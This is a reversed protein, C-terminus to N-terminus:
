NVSIEDVFLFGGRGKRDHWEPLSTLTNALVRVYRASTEPFSLTYSRIGNPVDIGEVEYSAEAVKTFTQGDDSTSITLGTPNFVDDWKNVFVGLTVKSYAVEGGMDVTVDFPEFYWGAWDGSTYTDKGNVGDTLLDPAHYTYNQTPKVNMMVAKGLAKHAKFEKTYVKTGPKDSKAKVTCSSSICIPEVYLMSGEDPESGDLTYRIPTSGQTVLTLLVKGDKVDIRGDTKFIHKAYNYGMADYIGCFDDASELFREWSKNEPLCWQVESLAAMRPLLMYELHEDTSIYETWLNAQVGIIHAKEEETMGDVFPEYSYCKEVPLYGGIGLPEESTNISQYYDLYFFTNPTMIADHGLRAAEIGGSTGRWSMVTADPAIKGELIEDWGIIKKGKSNLFKGIRDTVYSQLYHEATHKDDDKLGLEAIKAQCRPCKEWRVKPCEDGGIHIYESPFLDAVESLIDELFLMTEEKGVCLVDDSIGWRGWVDYPGGTCGFQPYACLAALMHGPLDIEPIITIGRAAAYDIIDKIQEQTFWCGEGYPTGDYTNSEFLHGVLTEKRISGIETLRPYKKIEIRWGQDDTLHWHLTNLKHVEMIDIYRKVQAEDFFHRSVDMHMGRYAFRPADKIKVCQMKWEKGEAPSNGFIEVPLLQKISQIAYVFGNLSSAKVNVAKKGVELIYEEKSLSADKEFVFGKSSTGSIVNRTNGSVMSLQDAFRTVADISAQDMDPSCCVTASGADFTGNCISIENPFPVIEVESHTRCCSIAAILVCSLLTLRKM